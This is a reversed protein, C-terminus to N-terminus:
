RTPAALQGVHNCVCTSMVATFLSLAADTYYGKRKNSPSPSDHYCKQYNFSKACAIVGIRMNLDQIIEISLLYM